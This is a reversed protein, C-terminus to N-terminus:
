SAQFPGVIVNDFDDPNKINKTIYGAWGAADTLRKVDCTGGRVRHAWPNLRKPNANATADLPQFLAEFDEWRQEPVRFMAHLHGANPMGEIVAVVATRQDRKSPQNYRPGLLAQDVDRHFTKLASQLFERTVRDCAHNPKLTVAHTYDLSAIWETFTGSIEYYRM